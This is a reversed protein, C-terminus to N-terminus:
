LTVVKVDGDVVQFTGFMGTKSQKSAPRWEGVGGLGAADVLATLSSVDIVSPIFVVPLISSWPYYEARYRIDAVGTQNRVNDTRMKPEGAIPVLMDSGEGQVLIMQKLSAMTVGPFYRAADVIAAKFGTAPFGDREGPMLYRSATYCEDPNKPQRIARKGAQKDEMMQRAKESFRNVILPATGEVPILALSRGIREIRIPDDGAPPKRPAM